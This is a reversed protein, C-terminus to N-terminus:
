WGRLFGMLADVWFVPNPNPNSVEHEVVNQGEEQVRRSETPHQSPNLPNKGVCPHDWESTQGEFEPM